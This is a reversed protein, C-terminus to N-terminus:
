REAGQVIADIPGEISRVFREIVPRWEETNLPEDSIFQIQAAGLGAKRVSRSSQELAQMDAALNQERAPLVFFNINYMKIERGDRTSTFEYQTAPIATTGMRISMPEIGELKWGMNPYCIRPYHGNMDSALKCHVVLLRLYRNSGPQRYTRQVIINPKLIRQQAPQIEPDDTGIWDGVQEPISNIASRVEAHYEEAWVPLEVGLGGFMIVGLLILASVMPAGFAAIRQRIQRHRKRHTTTAQDNM